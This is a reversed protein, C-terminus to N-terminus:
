PDFFNKELAHTSRERLRDYLQHFAETISVPGGFLSELTPLLIQDVLHFYRFNKMGYRM